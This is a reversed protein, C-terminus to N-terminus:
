PYKLSKGLNDTLHSKIILISKGAVCIHTHVWEGRGLEKSSRFCTYAKHGDLEFPKCTPTHTIAATTTCYIISTYVLPISSPFFGSPFFYGEGKNAIMNTLSFATCHLSHFHLTHHSVQPLFPACLWGHCYMPECNYLWTANARLPVSQLINHLAHTKSEESM